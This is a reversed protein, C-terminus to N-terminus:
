RNNRKKKVDWVEFKGDGGGVVCFNSNENIFCPCYTGLNKSVVKHQLKKDMEILHFYSNCGGAGIVCWKGDNSLSMVKRPVLQKKSPVLQQSAERKASM